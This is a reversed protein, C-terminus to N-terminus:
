AILRVAVEGLAAGFLAFLAVLKAAQELCTDMPVDDTYGKARLEAHAQERASQTTM